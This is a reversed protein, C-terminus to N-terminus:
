IIKTFVAALTKWWPKIPKPCDTQALIIQRCVESNEQNPGNDRWQVCITHM